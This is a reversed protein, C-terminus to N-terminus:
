RMRKARREEASRKILMNQKKESNSRVKQIANEASTDWQFGMLDSSLTGDKFVGWGYAFCRSYVPLLYTSYTFTHNNPYDTIIEMEWSEAFWHKKKYKLYYNIEFAYVASNYIYEAPIIGYILHYTNCYGEKIADFWFGRSPNSTINDFNVWADDTANKYEPTILKKKKLEGAKGTEDSALTILYYANNSVIQNNQSDHAVFSIYDDTIKLKEKTSIEEIIEKNTMKNYERESILMWQFVNVNSTAKYEWCMRDYLVVENQIEVYCVPKGAEQIVNITASQGAGTLTISATRPSSSENESTPYVTMEVNGNGNSPSINLWDPKGSINWNINSMVKVTQKFDIGNKNGFIGTFTIDTSGAGNVTISSVTGKQIINVTYSLQSDTTATIIITGTRDETSLNEKASLAVKNGNKYATLWERGSSVDVTWDTNETTVTIDGSVTGNAEVSASGNVSMTPNKDDDSGCATFVVGFM